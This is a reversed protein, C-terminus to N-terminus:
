VFLSVEITLVYTGNKLMAEFEDRFIGGILWGVTPAATTHNRWVIGPRNLEEHSPSGTLSIIESSRTCKIKPCLCLLLKTPNHSQIGELDKKSHPISNMM